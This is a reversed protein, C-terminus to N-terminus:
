LFNVSRKMLDIRPDITVIKTAVKGSGSTQHLPQFHLDFLDFGIAASRHAVAVSGGSVMGRPVPSVRQGRQLAFDVVQLPGDIVQLSLHGGPPVVASDWTGGPAVAVGRRGADSERQ